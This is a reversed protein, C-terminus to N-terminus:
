EERGKRLISDRIDSYAELLVHTVIFAFTGIVLLILAIEAYHVIPSVPKHTIAPIFKETAGEHCRSCTTIKNKGFVPSDPNDSKEIDHANHCDACGPAGLHGLYLKRGHFSDEYSEIVNEELEYQALLNKDGHCKGCTEVQHRKHVKADPDDSKKIYHPSGHCDICFAGDTQKKEVINLGHVSGLVEQFITAHCNSCAAAAIPDVPHKSSIQSSLSLLSSPVSSEQATHSDDSFGLHCNTCSLSRHVSANYAESDVNLEVLAGSALQIRGKMVNHCSTCSDTEESSVYQPFLFFLFILPAAMISVRKHSM